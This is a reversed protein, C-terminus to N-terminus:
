ALTKIDGNPLVINIEVRNSIIDTRRMTDGSINRDTDTKKSVRGKVLHAYGDGEDVVGDLCGSTLVLGLQGINFPLLPHQSESFGTKMAQHKKFENMMNSDSILEHLENSDLKSGKFEKVELKKHPLMYEKDLTSIGPIDEYNNINLLKQYVDNHNEKAQAKRAILYVLQYVEDDSTEGRFIDVQDYSRSIFFSIDSHLRYYPIVIFNFAGKRIYKDVQLMKYREHKSLHGGIMNLDLTHRIDCITKSVDFVDNSIRSGLVEGLGVREIRETERLGQTMHAHNTIAYGLAKENAKLASLLCEGSRAELDLYNFERNKNISGICKDISESISMANRENFYDVRYSLTDNQGYDFDEYRKTYEDLEIRIENPDTTEEWKNIKKILEGTIYILLEHQGHQGDRVIVYEKFGLQIDRIAKFLDLKIISIDNGEKKIKKRIVGIRRVADKVAYLAYLM